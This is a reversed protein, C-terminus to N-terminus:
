PYQQFRLMDAMGQDRKVSAGAGIVWMLAQSFLNHLPALAISTGQDFGIRTASSKIEKTASARFAPVTGKVFDAV